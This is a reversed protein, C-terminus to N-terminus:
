INENMFKMCDTLAGTVAINLSPTIPPSEKSKEKFFLVNEYSQNILEYSIAVEYFAHEGLILNFFAHLFICFFFWKFISSM